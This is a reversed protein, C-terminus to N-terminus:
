DDRWDVTEPLPSGFVPAVRLGGKEYVEEVETIRMDLSIGWKKKQVTVIDGLDYDIRYAFNADPDIMCSVAQTEQYDTQKEYGRQLLKERYDADSMGEEQTIDRADVFVERRDLGTGSGFSVYVRDGGSGQGGVYFVNKLNQVNEQYTTEELNDYSESFIVRANTSQTRTHDTGKYTEFYIVKNVFDPRFRFGINSTKSLKSEYKLLNKYTAQFSVEETFGNLTGLAVLPLTEANTLLTRMAAEVRGSFTVTPKILRRDMYSSLFRGTVELQAREATEEAFRGEVVAAETHGKIWVLNGIETLRLNEETIPTTLQFAGPEYYKRRWILSKHNEMIGIFNMEPTYFRIEM